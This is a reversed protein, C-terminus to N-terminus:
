TTEEKTRKSFSDAISQMTMVLSGDGVMLLLVVVVAMEAAQKSAVADHVFESVSECM